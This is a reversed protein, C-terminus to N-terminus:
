LFFQKALMVIRDLDQQHFEGDWNDNGMGKRNYKQNKHTRMEGKRENKIEIIRYWEEGIGKKTQVVRNIGKEDVRDISIVKYGLFSFLDMIGSRMGLVGVILYEENLYKLLGAEMSRNGKEPMWEWYNLLNPLHTYNKPHEGVPVVIVDKCVNQIVNLIQRMGEKGTDLAPHIGNKLQGTGRYNVLIIKKREYPMPFVGKSIIVNQYLEQNGSDGVMGNSLQKKIFSKDPSFRLKASIFRTASTVGFYIKGPLSGNNDRLIKRAKKEYFYETKRIDILKIDGEYVKNEFGGAIFYKKMQDKKERDMQLQDFLIVSFVNPFLAMLARVHYMDGSQNALIIVIPNQSLLLNFQIKSSIYM